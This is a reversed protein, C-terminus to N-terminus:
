RSGDPLAGCSKLEDDGPKDRPDVHIAPVLGRSDPQTKTSLACPMSEVRDPVNQRRDPCSPAIGQQVLIAHKVLHQLVHRPALKIPQHFLMPRIGPNAPQRRFTLQDGHYVALQGSRAAQALNDHSHPALRCPEIMEAGFQRLARGQRVGVRQPRTRRKGFQQGHHDGAGMAPQAALKGLRGIQDIRSSEREIPAAEVPRAKGLAHAAALQM